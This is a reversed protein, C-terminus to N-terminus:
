SSGRRTAARLPSDKAGRELLRTLADSIPLQTMDEIWAYTGGFNAELFVTRGDPTRIFDMASYRLGLRRALRRCRTVMAESLQIPRCRWRDPDIEWAGSASRRSPYKRWDIVTDPDEQSLIEAAYVQDGVVYVRLETAKPVYEEFHVPCFRVSALERSTLEGPRILRTLLATHRRGQHPETRLLVMNGLRKGAVGGPFRRVFRLLEHKDTTVLTAPVEFGAVRALRLEHLRSIAALEANPPNVWLRDDLLFSLNQLASLWESMVVLRARREMGPIPASPWIIPCWLSRIEGFPVARRGCRLSGTVTGRHGLELSLGMRDARNMDFFAHDIGRADLREAIREMHPDLPGTLFVITM